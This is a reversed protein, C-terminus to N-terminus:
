CACDSTKQVVCRMESRLPETLVGRVRRTGISRLRARRCGVLGGPALITRGAPCGGDPLAEATLEIRLVLALDLLSRRLHGRREEELREQLLHALGIVARFEGVTATAFVHEALLEVGAQGVSHRCAIGAAYGRHNGLPELLCRFFVVPFYSSR